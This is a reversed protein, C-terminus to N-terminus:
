YVQIFEFDTASGALVNYKIGDREVENYFNYGLYMDRSALYDTIFHMLSCYCDKEKRVKLTANVQDVVEKVYNPRKKSM